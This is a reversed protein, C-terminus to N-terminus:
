SQLRTKKSIYLELITNFIINFSALGSKKSGKATLNPCQRIKVNCFVRAAVKGFATSFRIKEYKTLGLKPSYIYCCHYYVVSWLM